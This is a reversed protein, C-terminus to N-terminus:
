KRVGTRPVRKLWSFTWHSPLWAIHGAVDFTGDLTLSSPPTLLLLGPSFFSFSIPEKGISLGTLARSIDQGM